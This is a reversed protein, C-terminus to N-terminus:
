KLPDLELLGFRVAADDTQPDRQSSEPATVQAARLSAIEARAAELERLTARHEEVTRAHASSLEGAQTRWFERHNRMQDLQEEAQHKQQHMVNREDLWRQTVAEADRLRAELREVQAQTHPLAHQAAALRAATERTRTLLSNAILGACRRHFVETGSIVFRADPGSKPIPQLCGACTAAM